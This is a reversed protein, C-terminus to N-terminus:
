ILSPSAEDQRDLRVVRARDRLLRPVLKWAEVETALEAIIWSTHTGANCGQYTRIRSEGDPGRDQRALSCEAPAHPIEILYERRDAM